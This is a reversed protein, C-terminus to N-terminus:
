SVTAFTNEAEYDSVTAIKKGELLVANSAGYKGHNVIMRILLSATVTFLLIISVWALYFWWFVPIANFLQPHMGILYATIWGVFSITPSLSGYFKLVGDRYIDCIYFPTLRSFIQPLVYKHLFIANVFLITTIVLKYELKQSVVLSEGPVVSKYFLFMWGTVFLAIFGVETSVVLFRLIMKHSENIKYNKVLFILFVVDLAIAAGLAQAAVLGHTIKLGEYLYELGTIKLPADVHSLYHAGVILLLMSILFFLGFFICVLLHLVKKM